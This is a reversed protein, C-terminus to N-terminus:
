TRTRLLDTTKLHNLIQLLVEAPLQMIPAAQEM